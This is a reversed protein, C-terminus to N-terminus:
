NRSSCRGLFLKEKKKNLFYVLQYILLKGSNILLVFSSNTTPCISAGMVRLRISQRQMSDISCKREYDLESIM